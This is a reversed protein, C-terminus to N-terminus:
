CTGLTRGDLYAQDIMQRLPAADVPQGDTTRCDRVEEASLWRVDATLNLKRNLKVWFPYLRAWTKVGVSPSTRTALFTPLPELTLDEPVRLEDLHLEELLERLLTSQPCLDGMARRGGPLQWAQATSDYTLLFRPEDAEDTSGILGVAAEVARVPAADPLVDLRRADLAALLDGAKEFPHRLEDRPTLGQSHWDHVLTAGSDLLDNLLRMAWGALPSVVLAGCEEDSLKLVGLFALTDLVGLLYDYRDPDTLEVFKAPAGAETPAADALKDLLLCIWGRRTAAPTNRLM